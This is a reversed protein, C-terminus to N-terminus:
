RAMGCLLSVIGADHSFIAPVAAPPRPDVDPSEIARSIIQDSMTAYSILYNQYLIADYLILDIQNSRVDYSIM